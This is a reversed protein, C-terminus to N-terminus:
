AAEARGMPAALRQKVPEDLRSYLDLVEPWLDTGAAKGILGDIRKDPLLAVLQALRDRDELLFAVHLLTSDDMAELAAAIAQDGLHGVFQGLTVHEGRRALERTIESIQRPPIGAVLAGARRPDLSAAADALFPTPLRSAVDIARAPELMGALRAVLVPGFARQAIIAIVPTPLIRSAGAIRRLAHDHATFLMEGIQERLARIDAAPVGELYELTAPERDLLHALKLIEARAAGPRPAGAQMATRVVPEKM